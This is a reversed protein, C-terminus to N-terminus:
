QITNLISQARESYLGNPFIKVLELLRARAEEKHGLKLYSLASYYNAEDYTQQRCKNAAQDLALSASSFQRQEFLTRGYLTHAPCYSNNLQIAKSLSTKAQSFNELMFYALGLHTWTREPFLYTLDKTALLLEDIALPYQKTEIYIRALNNRAESFDKKIQLSKKLKDIALAQEGRAFYTLALNNLIFPSQPNLKEAELLERLALPYNGQNLYGTGIKLHLEAREISEIPPSFLNCATTQLLIFLVCLRFLM